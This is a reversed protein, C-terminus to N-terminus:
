GKQADMLSPSLLQLCMRFRLALYMPLLHLPRTKRQVTSIWSGSPLMLGINLVAEM